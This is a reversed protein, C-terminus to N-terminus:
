WWGLVGMVGPGSWGTGCGPTGYGAKLSPWFLRNPAPSTVKDARLCGRCIPSDAHTSRM